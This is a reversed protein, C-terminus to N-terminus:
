FDPMGRTEAERAQAEEIAAQRREDTRRQREKNDVYEWPSVPTLHSGSLITFDREMGQPNRMIEQGPAKCKTIKCTNVFGDWSLSLALRPKDLTSEGGRGYDLGRKKQLLVVAVGYGLAEHIKEIAGAVKWAEDYMALYDIINLSDPRIVQHFDHTREYVRLGAWQEAPMKNLLRGRVETPGMESEFYHVHQHVGGQAPLNSAAIDLAFATKGGNTEGAVVIINGPSVVAQENLGLPLKIPFPEESANLWDMEQCDRAVRRFWNNRSGDPEIVRMSVLEDLVSNRTEADQLGCEKGLHYGSFVGVSRLAWSRAKEVAVLWYEDHPYMM